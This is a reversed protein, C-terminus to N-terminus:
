ATMPAHNACWLVQDVAPKGPQETAVYDSAKEVLDDLTTIGEKRLAERIMEKVEEKSRKAM